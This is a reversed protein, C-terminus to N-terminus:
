DYPVPQKLFIHWGIQRDRLVKERLTYLSRSGENGARINIDLDLLDLSYISYQKTAAAEILRHRHPQSHLGRLQPQAERVQPLPRGDGERPHIVERLGAGACSRKM